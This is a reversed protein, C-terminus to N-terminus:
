IDYNTIPKTSTLIKYFNLTNNSIDGSMIYQFHIILPNQKLKTYTEQDYMNFFKSNQSTIGLNAFAKETNLMSSVPDAPSYIDLWITKAQQLKPILSDRYNQLHKLNIYGPICHGLTIIKIKKFYEVPLVNLIFILPYGGASHSIIIYEDHNNADIIQMIKSAQYQANKIFNSQYKNSFYGLSIFGQVWIRIKDPIIKQIIRKYLFIVFSATVLMIMAYIYLQKILLILISLSLCGYVILDTFVLSSFIFQYKYPTINKLVKNNSIIYLFSVFAAYWTKLRSKQYIKQIIDIWSLLFLDCNANNSKIKYESNNTQSFVAELHNNKSFKSLENKFVRKYFKDGRPDFGSIYFVARKM